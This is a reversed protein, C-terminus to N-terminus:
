RWHAPVSGSSSMTLTPSSTSFSQLDGHLPQTIEPSLDVSPNRREHEAASHDHPVIARDDREREIVNWLAGCEDTCCYDLLVVSEGREVDSAPKDIRVSGTALHSSTVLDVAKLAPAM